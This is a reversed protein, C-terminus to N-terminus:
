TTHSPSNAGVLSQVLEILQRAHYPKSLFHDPKCGSHYFVEPGVTGSVLLVKQAPELQRCARLLDMGTMNHMAYDTIILAPRPNASTFTQVAIEPDRFTKVDCGSPELIVSALELLM